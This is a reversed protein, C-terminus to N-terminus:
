KEKVLWDAAVDKEHLDFSNFAIKPVIKFEMSLKERLSINSTVVAIKKVTALLEMIHNLLMKFHDWIRTITLEGFDEFEVYLLVSEDQRKERKAIREILWDVDDKELEQIVKFALIEPNEVAILKIM